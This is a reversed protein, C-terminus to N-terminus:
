HCLAWPKNPFDYPNGNTTGHAKSVEGTHHSGQGVPNRANTRENHQRFTTRAKPSNTHTHIPRSSLWHNALFPTKVAESREINLDSTVSLVHIRVELIDLTTFFKVFWWPQILSDEHGCILTSSHRLYALSKLKEHQFPTANIHGYGYIWPAAIYPLMSGM